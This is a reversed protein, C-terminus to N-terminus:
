RWDRRNRRNARYDRWNDAAVVAVAVVAFGAAVIVLGIALAVPVAILFFFLTEGVTQIM